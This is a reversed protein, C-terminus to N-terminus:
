LCARCQRCRFNFRDDAMDRFRHLILPLNSVCFTAHLSENTYRFQHDQMIRVPTIAKIKVWIMSLLIDTHTHPPPLECHSNKYGRRRCFHLEFFRNRPLLSHSVHQEWIISLFLGDCLLARVRNTCCQAAMEASASSNHQKESLLHMLRNHYAARITDCRSQHVWRQRAVHRQCPQTRTINLRRAKNSM